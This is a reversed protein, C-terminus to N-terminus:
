SRGLCFINEFHSQITEIIGFSWFIYEVCHHHVPFQDAYCSCHLYILESYISGKSALYVGFSRFHCFRNFQTQEHSTIFQAVSAVAEGGPGFSFLSLDVSANKDYCVSKVLM